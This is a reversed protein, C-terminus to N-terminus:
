ALLCASCRTFAACAALRAEFGAGASQRSCPAPARPLLVASASLPIRCAGRVRGCCPSRGAGLSKCRQWPATVPRFGRSCPLCAPLSGVSRGSPRRAPWEGVAGFMAELEEESASFPLNKVLLVADSRAVGKTAAAKGGAAAAAELKAVDAGAPGPPLLPHSPPCSHTPPPPPPHPGPPRRDPGPVRQRCSWIQWCWCRDGTPPAPWVVPVTSSLGAPAPM